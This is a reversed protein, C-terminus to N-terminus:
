SRIGTRFSSQIGALLSVHNCNLEKSVFSAQNGICCMVIAKWELSLCSSIHNVRFGLQSVLWAPGGRFFRLMRLLRWV